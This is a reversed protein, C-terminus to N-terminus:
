FRSCSYCPQLPRQWGQLGGGNLTVPLIVLLYLWGFAAVSVGTLVDIAVAALTLLALALLM